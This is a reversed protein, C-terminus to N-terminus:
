PIQIGIRYYIHYEIEKEFIDKMHEFSGLVESLEEDTINDCAGQSYATNLANLIYGLLANGKM